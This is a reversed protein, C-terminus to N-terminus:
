SLVQRFGRFRAPHPLIGWTGPAGARSRLRGSCRRRHPGCGTARPRSPHGAAAAGALASPCADAPPRRLGNLFACRTQWGASRSDVGMFRPGLPRVSLAGHRPALERRDDDAARARRAPVRGRDRVPVTRGHASAAHGAGTQMHADASGSLLCAGCGACAARRQHRVSANAASPTQMCRPLHARCACPTM